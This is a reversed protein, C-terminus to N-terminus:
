IDVSKILFVICGFLILWTVNFIKDALIKTVLNKYVNFILQLRSSPIHYTIIVPHSSTDTHIGLAESKETEPSNLIVTYKKNKSDKIEKFAFRIMGSDEINSGNIQLQRVTKGNELLNFNVPKSNRISINKLKIVVSSLNEKPSIFSFRYDQGGYFFLIKGEDTQKLGIEKRLNLLTVAPIILIIVLLIVPIYKM